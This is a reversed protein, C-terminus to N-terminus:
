FGLYKEQKGPGQEDETDGFIRVYKESTIMDGGPGAPDTVSPLRRCGCWMSTTKGETM